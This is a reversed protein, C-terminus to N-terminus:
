IKEFELEVSKIKVLHRKGEKDDYMVPGLRENMIAQSTYKVWLKLDDENWLPIIMGTKKFLFNPPNFEGVPPFDSKVDIADDFCKQCRFANDLLKLGVDSDEGCLECRGNMKYNM